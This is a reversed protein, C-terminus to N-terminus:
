SPRLFCRVLIPDLTLVLTSVANTAGTSIPSPAYVPAPLTIVSSTGALASPMARPGWVFMAPEAPRRLGPPSRGWCAFVGFGGGGGYVGERRSRGTAGFRM